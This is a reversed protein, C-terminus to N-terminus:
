KCQAFWVKEAGDLPFITSRSAEWPAQLWVLWQQAKEEQCVPAWSFECLASAHWHSSCPFFQQHMGIVEVHVPSLHCIVPSLHSWFHQHAGRSQGETGPMVNLSWHCWRAEFKVHMLKLKLNLSWVELHRLCSACSTFTWQRKWSRDSMGDHSWWTLVM